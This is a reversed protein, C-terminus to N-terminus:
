YSAAPGEPGQQGQTGHGKNGVDIDPNELVEQLLVLYSISEDPVEIIPAEVINPVKGWRDLDPEHQSHQPVSGKVDSLVGDVGQVAEGVQALM